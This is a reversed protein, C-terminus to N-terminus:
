KGGRATGQTYAKFAESYEAPPTTRRSEQYGQSRDDRRGNSGLATARPRLGLSRLTADLERRASGAEDSNSAAQKRMAEWRKIFRQADDRTWGLRDLLEPDTPNDNLQDKLHELALDTAKRTYDLNAKDASDTGPKWQQKPPPTPNPQGTAPSDGQAGSSSPESGNPQNSSPRATADDPASDGGPKNSDGEAARNRTGEGEDQGSKGTKGDAARDDGARDSTEGDGAEDSKGAGEDAATNQGAGGTGSQNSKQGGGRKGGGSRDGDEDSESDSERKSKSPSQEESDRKAEKNDSSPQKSKQTPRNADQPRPSGKNENTKQGAGSEGKEQATAVGPTPRSSAIKNPNKIPMARPTTRRSGARGRPIPIRRPATTAPTTTASAGRRPDDPQPKESSQEGSPQPDSGTGEGASARNRTASTTRGARPTKQSAPKARATRTAKNSTALAKLSTAQRARARNLNTAPNPSAARNARSSQIPSNRIRAVRTAPRNSNPRRRAIQAPSSSRNAPNTQSNQDERRGPQKPGPQKQGPQPDQGPRSIKSARKSPTQNSSAKHNKLARRNAPVITPLSSARPALGSNSRAPPMRSTAANGTPNTRSSSRNERSRNTRSRNTRSSVPARTPVRSNPVPSAPSIMAKTAPNSTASSPNQAKSNSSTSISSSGSSPMAMTAATAPCARKSGARARSTPQAAGSEDGGETGSQAGAQGDEPQNPDPPQEDAGAPRKQAEGQGDEGTDGKDEPQSEADPETQKDRPHVENPREVADTGEQRQGDDRRDNQALQDESPERGTPSVIRIRRRATETRNPSPTKNDGAVAYYEVTDGVALGLKRPLFRYKRVFQGRHVEDLLTEDVIQKAGASAALKVSSLAFDPDGAVIELDAAADLPLDFEDRRPAVFQIEPPLDRVVEIQHRIPQPNQQGAANKFILQYSAHEPSQRDEALSLRFDVKAAEGEPRMRLDLKGDCDFDVYASAIPQNAIAELTIRTGELAKIDGQHEVRQAILGTYEPYAYEITRVVITPAAVVELQYPRTVADGAEIRYTLSQQLVTDGAPLTASHRYDDAPRNMEVARDVIQRDATTYYLMVPADDPLGQVRAKVTVQQGRFARTHGPTSRTSRPKRPRVSTPGPFCSGASQKFCIRPRCCRTSACVVVIGVLVYGLRILRTRDVASEVPVGVLNTAAQQEIAQFVKEHMGAHNERFMLFNLLTNKLTPRSREITYAAYLPNIRRVVLPVIQTGIWWVAGALYGALLLLRGWFGLGGSVM